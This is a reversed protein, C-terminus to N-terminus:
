PEVRSSAMALAWTRASRTSASRSSCPSLRGSDIDMETAAAHRLPGGDFRAAHIRNQQPNPPPQLPLGPGMACETTITPGIEHEREMVTVFNSWLHERTDGLVSPKCRFIHLPTGGLGVTLRVRRCVGQDEDLKLAARRNGEVNPTLDTLTPTEQHPKTAASTTRTRRDLDSAAVDDASTKPSRKMTAGRASRCTGAGM